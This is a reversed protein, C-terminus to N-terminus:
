LFLHVGILLTGVVRLCEKGAIYYINEVNIEGRIYGYQGAPQPYANSILMPSLENNNYNLLQSQEGCM